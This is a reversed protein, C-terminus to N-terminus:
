KGGWDENARSIIYGHVAEVDEASLADAFSPMGKEKRAGGLVIDKFQAHLEPTLARLDKEGGGRAEQGHCLACNQAFVEAGRTIQAETARVPPPPTLAPTKPDFPPLTGKAGLKYVLLRAQDRGRDGPSGREVAAMGGGWGAAIAVYQVGNVSYTMPAAIPMTNTPSEWLKEGTKDDYAAITRDITGEFVLGGGTALTGGAGPRKYPARWIEKQKVPDWAALWGGEIAAAKQNLERRLDAYGAFGFGANSRFPQPNFSPAQSYIFAQRQVPIYVLGTRPSFAMPWWNHAGGPGPEQLVPTEGFLTDKGYVPRGTKMDIHSAWTNPAIAEASILEGTARDLVYFFGNKPAQMLVHRLKGKITLDALVMPATATFDWSESPATQYHWRYEGTDADLAVISALFLNDGKDQSRYHFSLPSGNGAGVYVLNLAPDYTIADWVSGGGGLTWWTGSWTKAAMKMADNEFGKAPDGPVTFFRWLEHGDEADFAAVFGRVGMDAGGAGILVKGNFVRPAGTSAYPWEQSFTQTTWVPKGSKADLAILRGDLASVYIKGKWAALGRSVPECCAYRGREPPVKPDYKWILQGTDAKFAYTIDWASVLYMVGDVVLPSAEVGRFTELDHRWALGLNKVNGANIQDLPSYYTEDYTRGTTVWNGPDSDARAIRAADVQAAPPQPAGALQCSGLVLLVAALAARYSSRKTM